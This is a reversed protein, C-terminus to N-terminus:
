EHFTTLVVTQNHLQCSRSGNRFPAFEGYSYFGCVAVNEGLANTIQELEDAILQNMVVRRGVCSVVLALAPADNVQEIRGAARGAGEILEDKNHRMFRAIYGEPVDGAFTVSNEQENIAILTRTTEFADDHAKINLPFRMGSLPLDDAYEGLYSRYLELAPRHDLEYLVNGRARTIRREHGFPSWGSSYHYQIHLGDGYFGIAVVRGQAAIDNAIVWTEAFREGDGAMGGTIPVDGIRAGIAALLESGNIQLGDCFLLVHRLGELPLDALLQDAVGKTDACDALSASSMAIKGRELCVVVAHIGQDSIRAGAINGSTSVGAIGARPYRAHLTEFARPDRISLSDGFMLVLSAEDQSISDTSFGTWGDDPSWHLNDLKM